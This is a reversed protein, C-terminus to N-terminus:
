GRSGKFNILPKRVHEAFIVDGYAIIVDDYMISHV